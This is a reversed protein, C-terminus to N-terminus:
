LYFIAQMCMLIYFSIQVFYFLERYDEKGKKEVGSWEEVMMDM